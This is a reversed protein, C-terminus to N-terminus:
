KVAGGIPSGVAFRLEHLQLIPQLVELGLPEANNRDAVVRFLHQSVESLATTDGEGQQGIVIRLDDGLEADQVGHRVFHLSGVSVIRLDDCVHGLVNGDKSGGWHNGARRKGAREHHIPPAADRRALM